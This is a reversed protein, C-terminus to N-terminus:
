PRSPPVSWREKRFGFSRVIRGSGGAGSGGGCAALLASASAALTTAQRLSVIAAGPNTPEHPTTPTEVATCDLM